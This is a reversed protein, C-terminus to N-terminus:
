KTAKADNLAQAVATNMKDAMPAFRQQIAQQSKQTVAPMKDIFAAGAPSKYFATMSDIESQTFAEQYIKVFTPRLSEWSLDQRLQQDFKAPVADVAKQQADTLKQDKLANHMGQRMSQDIYTYFSEIVRQTKSAALLANISAESPPAAHSAGSSAETPPAAHSAGCLATAFVLAVLKRM